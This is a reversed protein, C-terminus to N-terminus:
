NLITFSFGFNDSSGILFSVLFSVSSVTFWDFSLNIVHLQGFVRPCKLMQSHTVVPRSKVKSILHLFHCANKKQKLWDQLLSIYFGKSKPM